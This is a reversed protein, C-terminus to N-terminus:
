SKRFVEWASQENLFRFDRNKERFLVCPIIQRQSRLTEHWNFPLPRNELVLTELSFHLLIPSFVEASLVRDAESIGVEMRKRETKENKGTEASLLVGKTQRSNKTHKRTSKGYHFIGRTVHLANDRGNPFPAVVRDVNMFCKKKRWSATFFDRKISSDEKRKRASIEKAKEKEGLKETNRNEKVTRTSCTCFCHFNGLLTRCRFADNCFFVVVVGPLIYTMMNMMM